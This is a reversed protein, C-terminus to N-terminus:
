LKNVKKMQLIETLLQLSIFLNIDYIVCNVPATDLAEAESDKAGQCHGVLM